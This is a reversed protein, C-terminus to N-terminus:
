DHCEGLRLVLDEGKFQKYMEKYRILDLQAQVRQFQNHSPNDKYKEVTLYSETAYAAVDFTFSHVKMVSEKEQDNGVSYIM